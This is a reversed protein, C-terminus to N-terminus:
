EVSCRVPITGRVKTLAKAFNSPEVDAISSSSGATSSNSSADAPGGGHASAASTAAPATTTSASAAAAAAAAAAAPQQAGAGRNYAEAVAPLAKLHTLLRERMIAVLKSHIEDRHVRYDQPPSGLPPSPLPLPISAPVLACPCCVLGSVLCSEHLVCTFLDVFMHVM